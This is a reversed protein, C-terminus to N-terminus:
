GIRNTSQRASIELLDTMKHPVHSNTASRVFVQADACTKTFGQVFQDQRNLLPNRQM